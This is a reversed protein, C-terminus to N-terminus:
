SLSDDSHEPHRLARVREVGKRRQAYIIRLKAAIEDRDERDPKEELKRQLKREKEKLQKLVKRISDIERAQASRDADLFGSLRALLKKTKM